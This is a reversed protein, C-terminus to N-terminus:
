GVRGVGTGASRNGNVAVTGADGARQEVADVDVDFDRRNFVAVGGVTAFGFARSLDGLSHCTRSFDLQLAIFAGFDVAVGLHCGAVDFFVTFQVGAAVTHKFQNSISETERGAGVGTDKFHRARNSIKVATDGNMFLM